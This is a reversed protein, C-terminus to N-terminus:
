AFDYVMNMYTTLSMDELSLNLVWFDCKRTSIARYTQEVLIKKSMETEELDM